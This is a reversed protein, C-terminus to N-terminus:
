NGVLGCLMADSGSLVDEFNGAERGAQSWKAEPLRSLSSKAADRFFIVTLSAEYAALSACSAPKFRVRHVARISRRDQLAM